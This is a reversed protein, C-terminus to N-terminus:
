VLNPIVKASELSLTAVEDARTNEEDEDINMPMDANLGILKPWNIV